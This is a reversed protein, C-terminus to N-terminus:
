RTQRLRDSAGLRRLLAHTRTQAPVLLFAALDGPEDLDLLLEPRSITEFRVQRAEAEAVHLRSSRPGFRAPVVTPPRRFLANTGERRGAGIVVLREDAGLSREAPRTLERISDASVLPVDGFLVLAAQAPREALATDIAENLSSRGPPERLAAVGLSEAFALLEPDPSLVEPRGVEAAAVAVLVDALMALVLERREEVSLIGALRSKAEGLGKVPIVLRLHETVGRRVVPLPPGGHGGVDGIAEAVM